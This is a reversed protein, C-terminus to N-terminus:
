FKKGRGGRRGRVAAFVRGELLKVTAEEGVGVAVVWGGGGGGGVGGWYIV